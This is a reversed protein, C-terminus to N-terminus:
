HQDADEIQIVSVPRWSSSLATAIMGGSILPSTITTSTATTAQYYVRLRMAGSRLFSPARLYGRMAGLCIVKAAGAIKHVIAPLTGHCSQGKFPSNLHVRTHIASDDESAPGM